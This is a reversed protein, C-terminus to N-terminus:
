SASSHRTNASTPFRSSARLAAASPAYPSTARPLSHPPRLPSSLVNTRRWASSASGAYSRGTHAQPPMPGRVAAAATTPPAAPTTRSVWSARSASDPTGSSAAAASRVISPDSVLTTSPTRASRFARVPMWSGTPWSPKRAARNASRHPVTAPATRPTRSAIRAATPSGATARVRAAPEAIASASPVRSGTTCPGIVRTLSRAPKAAATARSPASGISASARDSPSCLRARRSRVRSSSPSRGQPTPMRPKVSLLILASCSAATRATRGVCAIMAPPRGEWAASRSAAPILVNRCTGDAVSSVWNMSM